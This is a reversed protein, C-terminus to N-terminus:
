DVVVERGIRGENMLALGMQNGEVDNWVIEGEGSCRKGEVKVNENDVVV